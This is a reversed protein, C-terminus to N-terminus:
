ELNDIYSLNYGGGPANPRYICPEPTIWMKGFTDLVYRKVDDGFCHVDHLFVVHSSSLFPRVAELDRIVAEDYHLADIFAFDLREGGRLISRIVNDTDTPSWGMRPFVVDSLGFHEILFQTSRLGDSETNVVNSVARYQSCDNYQEEIYADMTILKGGNRQLGMGIACASVGFATAVEFGCRLDYLNIFTSIFKWEDDSISIPMAHNSMRIGNNERVYHVPGHTLRCIEDLIPM